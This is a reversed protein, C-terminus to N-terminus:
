YLGNRRFTLCTKEFLGFFTERISSSGGATEPVFPRDRVTTAFTIRFFGRGTRDPPSGRGNRGQRSFLALFISKGTSKINTKHYLEGMVKKHLPNSVPRHGSFFAYRHVRDQRQVRPGPANGCPAPKGDGRMVDRAAGTGGTILRVSQVADHRVSRFGARREGTGHGGRGKLCGRSRVVVWCLM